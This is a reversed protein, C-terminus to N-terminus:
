YGALDRAADAIRDPSIMLAEELNAALPMTPVDPAALRRVPADLSSFCQDAIFAAVEAGFGAFQNSEHVVLARGTRRVSAAIADTDLPKLSRLDLIEAEIGERALTDAAESALYRALGYTVISLDSGPRDIRARGLPIPGQGEDVEERFLRYLKKHEFVLVPDPDRIAAKLLGLADAPTSPVVVKLGPVHAVLSEFSQSHYLAGRVGAGAPMRVVLPCSFDGASRYRIKAAENVIQNMAVVLFDGFQIEVVPRLGDIAAGIAVGVIGSEGLPADVVRREGFEALLGETARFIGGATAIDIGILFVREDHAMEQRLALRVAELMNLEAM